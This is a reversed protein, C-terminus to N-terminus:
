VPAVWGAGVRVQWRGWSRRMGEKRPLWLHWGDHHCFVMFWRATRDCLYYNDAYTTKDRFHSRQRVVQLADEPGDVRIPSWRRRKPVDRWGAMRDTFIVLPPKAGLLKLATASAADLRRWSLRGHLEYSGLNGLADWFYSRAPARYRLKLTEHLARQAVFRM